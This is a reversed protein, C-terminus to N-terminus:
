RSLVQHLKYIKVSVLESRNKVSYVRTIYAVVELAAGVVIVSFYWARYKFLTMYTIAFFVIGYVVAGIVALPFSPSYMWVSTNENDAMKFLKLVSSTSQLPPICVNSLISSYFSRPIKFLSQRPTCDRGKQLM